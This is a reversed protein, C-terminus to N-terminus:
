FIGRIIQDEYNLDKKVDELVAKYTTIINTLIPKFIQFEKESWQEFNYDDFITLDLKLRKMQGGFSINEGIKQNLEKERSKLQNYIKKRTPYESTIRLDIRYYGRSPEFILDSDTTFNTIKLKTSGFNESLTISKPSYGLNILFSSVLLSFEDKRKSDINSSANRDIYTQIFKILEQHKEKDSIWYGIDISSSDSFEHLNMSTVIANQENLYIKCHLNEIEIPEIGLARIPQINNEINKRVYWKFNVGRKKAKEVRQTFKKWNTFKNYPSVITVKEEAQDILTMIKGSIEAPQILEM